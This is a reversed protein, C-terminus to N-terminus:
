KNAGTAGHPLRRSASAQLHGEDHGDREDAMV